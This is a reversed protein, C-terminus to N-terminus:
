LRVAKDEANCPAHARVVDHKLCAHMRAHTWTRRYHVTPPSACVRQFAGVGQGGAERKGKTNTNTNTNTNTSTSTNTNTIITTSTNSTSTSTPPRPLPHPPTLSPPEGPVGRTRQRARACM